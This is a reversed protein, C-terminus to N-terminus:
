ITVTLKIPPPFTVVRLFGGVQQLDSVFKIVYFTDLVGRWSRPEFECSTHHYASIEYTTTFGVVVRDRGHRDRAYNLLYILRGSHIKYFHFQM